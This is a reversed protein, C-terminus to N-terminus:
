NLSDENSSHDDRNWIAKTISTLPLFSLLKCFSEVVNDRKEKKLFLLIIFVFFLTICITQVNTLNISFNSFVFQADQPPPINGM